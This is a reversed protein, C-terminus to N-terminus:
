CHRKRYEAFYAKEMGSLQRIIQGAMDRQAKLGKLNTVPHLIGTRITFVERYGPIFGYSKQHDGRAYMCLVNCEPVSAMLRGVGYPFDRTCIRGSRSRTGEPFIMLSQKKELVTICKKLTASVGERQGGRNVPICKLAYCILRGAANRHFNDKEPVNWPIRDFRFVAQYLPMMAYALILSDIMTLHNACILWPGRHQKFYKRCTKRTKELDRIRYGAIKIFCFAMPALIFILVRGVMTQIVLKRDDSIQM